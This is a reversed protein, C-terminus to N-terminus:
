RQHGNQSAIMLMMVGEKPKANVYAEAEAASANGAATGGAVGADAGHADNLRANVDAGAELLEHAVM